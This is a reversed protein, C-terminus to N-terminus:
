DLQETTIAVAIARLACMEDCNEIIVVSGSKKKTAQIFSMPLEKPPLGCGKANRTINLQISMKGDLLFGSNSQAVKFICNALDSFNSTGVRRPPLFIPLNLGGFVLYASYVDTPTFRSLHDSITSEFFQDLVDSIALVNSFDGLNHSVNYTSLSEVRRSRSSARQQPDNITTVNIALKALM